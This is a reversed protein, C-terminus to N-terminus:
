SKPERSWIYSIGSGGFMGVQRGSHAWECPKTTREAQGWSRLGILPGPGVESAISSSSPQSRRGARQSRVM